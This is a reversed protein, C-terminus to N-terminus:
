ATTNQDSTTAAAELARPGQGNGLQLDIKRTKASERKPIRIELVGNEYTAQIKEVDAYAPLMASRTFTGYQQELWHTGGQDRQEEFHREAQLTLVNDELQIHIDQPDVGPLAAKLTLEDAREVVDMPMVWSGTLSRRGNGTSFGNQGSFRSFLRDMESHLEEIERLPNWRTLTM